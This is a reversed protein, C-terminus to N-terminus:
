PRQVSCVMRRASRILLDLRWGREGDKGMQKGWSRKGQSEKEDRSSRGPEKIESISPREYMETHSVSLLLAPGLSCPGVPKHLAKNLNSYSEGETGLLM